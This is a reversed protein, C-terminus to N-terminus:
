SNDIDGPTQFNNKMKKMENYDDLVEDCMLEEKTDAIFLKSMQVGLSIAKESALMEIGWDVGVWMFVEKNTKKNHAQTLASFFGKRYSNHIDQETKLEKEEIKDNVLDKIQEAVSLLLHEYLDEGIAEVADLDNFVKQIM